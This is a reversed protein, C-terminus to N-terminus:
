ESHKQKQTNSTCFKLVSSNKYIIQDIWVNISVTIWWIRQIIVTIRNLFSFHVLSFFVLVLCWVSVLMRVLPVIILKNDVNSGILINLQNHLSYNINFSRKFHPHVKRILLFLWGVVEIHEVDIVLFEFEFCVHVVRCSVIACPQGNTTEIPDYAYVPMCAHKRETIKFKNVEPKSGSHALARDDETDIARHYYVCRLAWFVGGIVFRVSLMFSIFGLSRTACQSQDKLSNM